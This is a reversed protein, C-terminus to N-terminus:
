GMEGIIIKKLTDNIQEKEFISLASLKPLSIRCRLQSSSSVIEDFPLLVTAACIAIVFKTQYTCVVQAVSQMVKYFASSKSGCQHELEQMGDILLIACRYNNPLKDLVGGISVKSGAQHIFSDWNSEPAQFQFLMRGGVEHEATGMSTRTGNEFSIPFVISQRLYDYCEHEHPISSLLINHFEDLFRSKGTGPASFCLFLPHLTKDYKGERWYKYHDSIHRELMTQIGEPPQYKWGSGFGQCLRTPTFYDRSLAAIAFIYIFFYLNHFVVPLNSPKQLRQIIPLNSPKPLRQILELRSQELVTILTDNRPDRAYEAVLRAKVEDLEAKVDPSSM